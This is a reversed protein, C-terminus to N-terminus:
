RRTGLRAVYRRSPLLGGRVVVVAGAAASMSAVPFTSTILPAEPASWNRCRLPHRRGASAGRRTELRVEVPDLWVEIPLTEEDQFLTGDEFLPVEEPPARAGSASPPVPEPLSPPAQPM